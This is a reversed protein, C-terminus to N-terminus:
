INHRPWEKKIITLPTNLTINLTHHAGTPVIEPADIITGHIRLRGLFRDWDVDEVKVGLLVPIREGRKPRAYKEDPKIERTTYAYVSDNKYIVNYLHWFDDMAEPVVKVFGKKMNTELIKM